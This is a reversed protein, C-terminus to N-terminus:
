LQFLDKDSYIRNYINTLRKLEERSKKYEETTNDNTKIYGSQSEDIEKIKTQLIARFKDNALFQDPNKLLFDYLKIVTELANENKEVNQALEAFLMKMTEINDEKKKLTLTLNGGRHKATRRATRKTTRRNATRRATRRATRKTHKVM